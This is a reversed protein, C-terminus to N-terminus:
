STRMVVKRLTPGLHRTGGGESVIELLRRVDRVRSGALLTVRHRRFPEPILPTSPGVLAVERARGAHRLLGEFTGNVITVSTLIVVSCRPLIREAERAPHVHPEALEREELVHFDAVRDKLPMFPAFYGVMGVRDEGAVRLHQLLDGELERRPDAPALANITAVGLSARLSNDSFAGELLEWANRGRLTGADDLVACCGPREAGVTYALGARGDDLVVASYGLGLRLDAVERERAAERVRELLAQILSGGPEINGPMIGEAVVTM